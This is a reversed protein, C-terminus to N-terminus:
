QIPLQLIAPLPFKSSDVSVQSSLENILRFMDRNWNVNQLVPSFEERPDTILYRHEEKDKNKPDGYRLALGRRELEEESNQAQALQADTWNLKLVPIQEIEPVMNTFHPGAAVESQFQAMKNTYDQDTPSRGTTALFAAYYFDKVNNAFEMQDHPSLQLLSPDKQMLADFADQEQAAAAMLSILSRMVLHASIRQPKSGSGPACLAKESQQETPSEEVSFGNYIIELIQTLDFGEGQYQQPGLLATMGNDKNNFDDVLTQEINAVNQGYQPKCPQETGPGTNMACEPAYGSQTVEQHDTLQFQPEVQFSGLEWRGGNGKGDGGVLEWVDKKAWADNFDKAAPLSSTKAAGDSSNEAPPKSNGGGGSPPTPPSSGTTNPIYSDQDIPEFVNQGRLLLLGHKQLAYIVASIRLFTIYSALSFGDNNYNSKADFRPPPLNRIVEVKCAPGSDPHRPDPPLPLTIEIRDVTLRFLQDLRWGQLYLSYFFEANVPTLAIQANAEDSVPVFNFASYNQYAATPTGGGIPITTAPPSSVTALSGSGTLGAQMQYTSSIQALKFFYTPDHQNLRALNLLEEHNSTVAYSNEYGKFDARVRKPGCGTLLMTAGGVVLLMLLARILPTRAFSSSFLNAVRFRERNSARSQM